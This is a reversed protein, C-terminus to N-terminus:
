KWPPARHKTLRSIGTRHEGVHTFDFMAQRRELLLKCANAVTCRRARSLNGFAGARGKGGHQASDGIPKTTAGMRHAVLRRIEAILHRVEAVIRQAAEGILDLM